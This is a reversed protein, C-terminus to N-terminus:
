RLTARTKEDPFSTASHGRTNRISDRMAPPTHFQLDIEDIMEQFRAELVRQEVEVVKGSERERFQLFFTKVQREINPVSPKETGPATSEPKVQAFAASGCILLFLLIRITKMTLSHM